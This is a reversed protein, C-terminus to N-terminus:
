PYATVRIGKERMRDFMCLADDMLGRKCLSHILIAYTVENPELGRNGMGTFLREAESFRGDKCLKDILANCAFLNPVM